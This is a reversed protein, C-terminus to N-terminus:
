AHRDLGIQIFDIPFDKPLELVVPADGIDLQGFADANRGRGAKAAHALKFFAADDPTIAGNEVAFRKSLVEDREARDAKMALGIDVELCKGFFGLLPRQYAAGP